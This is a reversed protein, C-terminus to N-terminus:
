TRELVGSSSTESLETIREDSMRDNKFLNLNEEYFIHFCDKCLGTYGQDNDPPYCEAGDAQCMDCRPPMSYEINM